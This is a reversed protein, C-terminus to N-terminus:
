HEPTGRGAHSCSLVNQELAAISVRPSSRRVRDLGFDFRSLDRELGGGPLVGLARAAGLRRGAREALERRALHDLFEVIVDEVLRAHLVYHPALLECM